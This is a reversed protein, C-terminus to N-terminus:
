KKNVERNKRYPLKYEKQILTDLEELMYDGTSLVDEFRMYTTLEKEISNPFEFSELLPVPVPAIDRKDLFTGYKMSYLINNWLSMKDSLELQGYLSYTSDLMKKEYNHLFLSGDFMTPNERLDTLGNEFDIFRYDLCDNMLINAPWIDGSWVGNQHMNQLGLLMNKYFELIERDSFGAEYWTFATLPDFGEQYEERYAYVEKTSNTFLVKYVEDPLVVKDIMKKQLEKVTELCGADIKKMLHKSDLFRLRTCEDEFVKLKDFSKAFIYKMVMGRGM